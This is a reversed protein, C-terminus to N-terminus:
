APTSSTRSSSSTAAKSGPTSTRSCGSKAPRGAHEAPLEVGRHLRADGAHEDRPGPRGHVRLRGQARRGPPDGRGAPLRGRNRRRARRHPAPDSRRRPPHENARGGAACRGALTRAEALVAPEDLTLVKRDRMLVRGNVITTRVDDGSPRTSSTRCPITCRRRARRRVDVRRDPRRAQRARALRDDAGHRAGRAGESTAMALVDAAPLARPDNSQLKHLLAAQRMAEFMDLDNNSAAGDTGLGVPVGARRLAPVPATGSALKM